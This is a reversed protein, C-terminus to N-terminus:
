VANNGETVNQRTKEQALQDAIMQETETIVKTPVERLLERDSISFSEMEIFTIRECTSLAKLTQDVITKQGVTISSNADSNYRKKFHEFFTFTIESVTLDVAPFNIRREIYTRLTLSVQAAYERPTIKNEDILVALKLLEQTAFESHPIQRSIINRSRYRKIFWWMAAVLMAALLIYLLWIVEDPLPHFAPIPKIDHFGETKDHM